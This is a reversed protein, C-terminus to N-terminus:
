VQVIHSWEHEVVGYQIDMIANLMRHTHSKKPEPCPVNYEKDRFRLAEVPSVIAATGCGFCEMVRNEKLADVLEEITFKRESVKVEGWQRALALISDRTVGPLVSGDLPATILELDPKASSPQWLCMFNMAGVEEVEGDPGLWLVQQYGRAEAEKQALMPGAYNAGLKVDGTGGPWARKRKEEVLLKVPKMGSAYYPGVPSAIVFLKVQPSPAASLTNGFGIAAPRLYLSYGRETPIYDKEVKVFEMIVKLLEKPDFSPFCLRQMSRLLRECNREPRFLRIRGAADRYAKLGEFCQLGYHLCATQPPISLNQFPVIGPAGWQTESVSDIMVMHPTFLTGFKVGKLSPPPPPNAAGRITLDGAKFSM